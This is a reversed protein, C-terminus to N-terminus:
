RLPWRYLMNQHSLVSTLRVMSLNEKLMEEAMEIKKSEFEESKKYYEAYKIDPPEPNISLDVDGSIIREEEIKKEDIM